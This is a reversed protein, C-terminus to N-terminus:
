THELELKQEKRKKYYEKHKKLRLNYKEPNLEKMRKEYNKVAKRIYSPTKYNGDKRKIINKTGTETEM